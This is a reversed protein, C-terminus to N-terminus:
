QSVSQLRRSRALQVKPFNPILRGTCTSAKLSAIVLNPQYLVLLFRNAAHFNRKKSLPSSQVPFPKAFLSFKALLRIFSFEVVRENM